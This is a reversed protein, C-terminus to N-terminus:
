NPRHQGSPHGPRQLQVSVVTCTSCAPGTHSAAAHQVSLTGKAVPRPQMGLAFHSCTSHRLDICVQSSAHSYLVCHAVIYYRSVFENVQCMQTASVFAGDSRCTYAVSGLSFRFSSLPLHSVHLHIHIWTHTHTHTHTYRYVYAFYIKRNRNYM